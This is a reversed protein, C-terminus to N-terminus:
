DSMHLLACIPPVCVRSTALLDCVELFGLIYLLVENPLDSLSVLPTRHRRDIWPHVPFSVAPWASSRDFVESNDLLCSSMTNMMEDHQLNAVGGQVYHVAVLDEAIARPALQADAAPDEAPSDNDEPPQEPSRNCRMRSNQDGAPLPDSESRTESAIQQLSNSDSYTTSM